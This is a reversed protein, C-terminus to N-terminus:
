LYFMILKIYSGISFGYLTQVDQHVVEHELIIPATPLTSFTSVIRLLNRMNLVVYLGLM